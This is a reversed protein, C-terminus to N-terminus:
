VSTLADCYAFASTGINKVSGPITIRTLSSCGWFAEEGIGTVPHGNITEPLTLDTDTGRYGLIIANGNKVTYAYDNYYAAHVDAPAVFGAFSVATFVVAAMLLVRFMKKRLIKM